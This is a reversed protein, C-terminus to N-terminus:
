DTDDLLPQVERTMHDSFATQLDQLRTQARLFEVRIEQVMEPHLPSLTLARQYFAAAARPNNQAFFADGKVVFARANRADHAIARDAAEHAADYDGMNRSALAIVGWVTTDDLGLEVAQRALLVANEPQTARLAAIADGLLQQPNTSSQTGTTM